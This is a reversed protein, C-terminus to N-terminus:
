IRYGKKWGKLISNIKNWKDKEFLVVQLIHKANRLNGRIVYLYLKHKRPYYIRNQAIYFCRLAPHENIKRKLCGIGIIRGEGLSHELVVKRTQIVLYGEKRVRYCFEFDVSDIFMKEDYRGVSDWVSVKICAGSTICTNVVGYNGQPNHGIIGVNRDSIVPAVIGVNPLIDFLESIKICYDHQCVSDQDLSLMWSFGKTRGYEMLQNLAAAIGFNKQNSIIQINHEGALREIEEFNKSGNDVIIVTELQGRISKININLIDIDPNYTVIGAFLIKMVLGM